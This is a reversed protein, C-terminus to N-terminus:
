LLYSRSNVVNSLTRIQDTFCCGWEGTRVAFANKLANTRFMGETYKAMWGLLNSIVVSFGLFLGDTLMEITGVDQLTGRRSGALCAALILSTSFLESAIDLSMTFREHGIVELLSGYSEDLGDFWQGVVRYRAYTQAMQAVEENFGFLRVVDDMVFSWVLANPIMCLTFLISTIQVYEGALKHNRRGVAQSCLSATSLAFGGFFEETIELILNVITYASVAETSIFNAVLALRIVDFIGIVVASVSFPISLNLIRKMERDWEVIDLLRDYAAALVAPKWWAHTGCCTVDLKEDKVSAEETNPQSAREVSLDGLAKGKSGSSRTSLNRDSASGVTGRQRVPGPNIGPFSPIAYFQADDDNKDNNEVPLFLTSTREDSPFSPSSKGDVLVQEHFILSQRQEEEQERQWMEDKQGRRYRRAGAHRNRVAAGRDLLKTCIHNDASPEITMGAGEEDPYPPILVKDLVRQAPREVIDLPSKAENSYQSGSVPSSADSIRAQEQEVDIEGITTNDTTSSAMRRRRKEYRRGLTVMFPFLVVSLGCFVATAVNLWPGPDVTTEEYNEFGDDDDDM